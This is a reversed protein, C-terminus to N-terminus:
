VAESVWREAVVRSGSYDIRGSCGVDADVRGCSDSGRGTIRGACGMQNLGSNENRLGNENKLVM